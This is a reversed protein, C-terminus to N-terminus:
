SQRGEEGLLPYPSTSNIIINSAVIINKVITNASGSAFQVRLSDGKELETAKKVIKGGKRVLAYGRSLVKAPNLEGLLRTFGDATESFRAIHLLLIDGHRAAREAASRVREGFVRLAGAFRNVQQEVLMDDYRLADEFRNSFADVINEVYGAVAVRDPAVREAANSPTSARVDAALEALCEDREHGIAVVTPIASGFVARVVAENNFAMMEEASGGGRTVILVEPRENKSLLNMTKIAFVIDAPAREGQVQIHTFVVEIGSWRNQLIRLVDTYAAADRSTILGIREPFRPLERKRGEDFLGESELQKRLKLLAAQLAGAGLLEVSSVNLTLQGYKPYIKPTSRVIVRMGNEIPVTMQYTTMFCKLLAGDESDKLDFRVWKGQSVNFGAVEGEVLFDPGAMRFMQDNLLEIAYAVSVPTVPLKIM